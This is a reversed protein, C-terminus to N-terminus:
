SQNVSPKSVASKRSARVMNALRSAQSVLGRGQPVLPQIAARPRCSGSAIRMLFTQKNGDRVGFHQEPKPWVTGM